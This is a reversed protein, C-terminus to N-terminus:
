DLALLVAGCTENSAQPDRNATSTSDFIIGSSLNMSKGHGGSACFHGM